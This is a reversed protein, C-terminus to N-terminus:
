STSFFPIFNFINFSFHGPKSRPDLLVLHTAKEIAANFYYLASSVYPFLAYVFSSSTNKVAVFLRVTLEEPPYLHNLKDFLRYTGKWSGGGSGKDKPHLADLRM